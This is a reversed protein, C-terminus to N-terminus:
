AGYIVIPLTLIVAAGRGIEEVVANRVFASYLGWLLGLVLSRSLVWIWGSYGALLLPLLAIGVGFGSLWFNDHGVYDHYTSLFLWNLGFCPIYWWTWGRILWLTLVVVLSCGIRRYLKNFHASGGMRYTVGSCVAMGVIVAYDTM